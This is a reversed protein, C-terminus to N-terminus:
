TKHGQLKDGMFVINIGQVFVVCKFHKPINQKDLLVSSFNM